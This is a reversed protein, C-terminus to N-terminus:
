MEIQVPTGIGANLHHDARGEVVAIEVFGQSGALGVLTGKEAEGYTSVIQHIPAGDCSLRGKEQLSPALTDPLNTILNGFHDVHIIEGVLVDQHELPEPWSLSFLDPAPPGLCSPQGSVLQAAVPAFIDRGHFTKSVPQETQVSRIITPTHQQAALSLLGNDPVLFRQDGMEVYVIQRSTGVGPDVVIVHLTHPPFHFCTARAFWAAARIDHEPIDHALDILQCATLQSASDPTGDFLTKYFSGKMQAVYGSSTGFDTTLTVLSTM